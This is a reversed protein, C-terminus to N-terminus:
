LAKEAAVLRASSTARAVLAGDADMLKAEIFAVTKGLQIV